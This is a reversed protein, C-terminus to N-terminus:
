EEEKRGCVFNYIKNFTEPTKELDFECGLLVYDYWMDQFDKDDDILGRDVLNDYISKALYYEYLGLKTELKFVRDKIIREKTLELQKHENEQNLLKAYEKETLNKCELITECTGNDAYKIACYKTKIEKM